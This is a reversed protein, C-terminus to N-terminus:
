QAASPGRRRYLGQTFNGLAPLFHRLYIENEDSLFCSKKGHLRKLNTLLPEYAEKCRTVKTLALDAQCLLEQDPVKQDKFAVQAVRTDNCPVLLLAPVGQCSVGGLGGHGHGQAAETVRVCFTKKKRLVEKQLTGPRPCQLADDDDDDDDVDDDDDDIVLDSLLAFSLPAAANVKVGSNLQQILLIVEKLIQQSPPNVARSSILM